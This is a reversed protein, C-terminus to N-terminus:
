NIHCPKTLSLISQIGYQIGFYKSKQSPNKCLLNLFYVLLFADM